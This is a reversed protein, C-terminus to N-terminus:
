IRTLAAFSRHRPAVRDLGGSSHLISELAPGIQLRDFRANRQLAKLKADDINGGSMPGTQTLTMNGIQEYYQHIQPLMAEM